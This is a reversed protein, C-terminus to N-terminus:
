EQEIVDRRLIEMSAEREAFDTCSLLSGVVYKHLEDVSQFNMPLQSLVNAMVARMVPRPMKAFAEELQGCFQRGKEEIWARDAPQEERDAEEESLPAFASASLLKEIKKLDEDTEEERFRIREVASEQIGELDELSETLTEDMAELRENKFHERVGKMVHRFARDELADIIAEKHSLLVVYLDNLLGEFALCVDVKEHFLDVAGNLKGFCAKFSEEDMDRLDAAQVQALVAQLEPEAEERGEPYEIMASTRLMYLLGEVGSRDAGIYTTLKDTVLSYFKQRTYRVPLQSVISRLRRDLVMADRSLRLSELLSDAFEEPTEAVADMKAFRREMRNLVYEYISFSDGYSTLIEMDRRTSQRLRELEETVCEEGDLFRDLVAGFEQEYARIKGASTEQELMMECFTYYNLALRAYAYRYAASMVKKRERAEM